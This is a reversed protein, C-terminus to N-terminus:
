KKLIFKPGQYQNQKQKRSCWRMEISTPITGKIVTRDGCKLIKLNKPLAGPEVITRDFDYFELKKLSDPLMGPKIIQQGQYVYFEGISLEELSTCENIHDLNNVSSLKKIKARYKATLINFFKQYGTWFLDIDNEFIEQILHSHNNITKPDKKVEEIVLEKSKIMEKEGAIKAQYFEIFAPIFDTFDQTEIDGGYQGKLVLYKSKYKHYKHLYSM